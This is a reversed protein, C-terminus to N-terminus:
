LRQDNTHVYTTYIKSVRLGLDLQSQLAFLEMVELAWVLSINLLTISYDCARAYHHRIAFTTTAFAVPYVTISTAAPIAVLVDLKIVKSINSNVKVHPRFSACTCPLEVGDLISSARRSRRGEKTTEGGIELEMASHDTANDRKSVLVSILRGSSPNFVRVVGDGCCALLYRNM